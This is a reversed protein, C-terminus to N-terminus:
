VEIAAGAGFLYLYAEKVPRGAAEALVRRYIEMQKAYTKRLRDAEEEFPRSPDIWNTKYDLLVFGDEEAFYCDIIGQTIIQEGEVDMQLAFPRERELVGREFAKAARRGLDSAFFDVIRGLDVAQIETETFITRDIMDAAAQELYPLGEVAARAFDIREMIGHYITGKEAATLKKEGQRFKPVALTMAQQGSQGAGAEGATGTTGTAAQEQALRNLESVSYKSKLQRAAEYPYVYSLRREVEAKQAETPEGAFFGPDTIRKKARGTQKKGPSLRDGHIIELSTTQGIMELYTGEGALGQELFERYKEGDKVTGTMFLFDKARTLAVYLIRTEEQVEEMHVQRAILKQLLTQKHWHGRYDALTMGIGIDKHLVVGAGIRTYTLNRGMGCVIVMPFELGKSKHITMIRVLEDQDGVLKVQGMPVKRKKVADIYRIFSYLSVQRNEMYKEAKDILARLNAQRQAGGPMAGMELYYGTELMLEWLFDGLPQTLSKAKWGKIDELASACKKRLAQRQGNQAYDMVASAFSGKKNEGRIRALEASSFKFIESHLVSILEVDQQRNDIVSLLNMFVSIEMTDFYGDSEDVFADIGRGKLTQYFIDAYNRTGRMLIVMDHLGLPREVGQKHDFFMRGLNEEILDAAELAELEANKLNALEEDTRDVTAVDVVKVEPTYLYPGDYDVGPYLKAEDDYDEMLGDFIENIERLIVSKSRFNRNLDLKVSQEESQYASYKAKFIEPEALRFKYISQKVDGVMFLNNERRILSIIEEQLVNTDQYEDIFIHDFKNRYYNAAEGAELIELCFHEIDNFDIVRKEAKASRFIHDFDLLLKRLTQAKPATQNMEAIQDELPELFFSKSISGIGGSAKKRLSAVTNKVMEYDPKEDKKAVLRPAAFNAMREALAEWDRVKVAEEMELYQALEEKELKEAMRELGNGGLIEMAQEETQISKEVTEGFFSWLKEMTEGATFTAKDASLAAVQRDLWEWPHPMAMLTGYTEDLMARIKNQNKDASYWGLFDYFEPEDREFWQELLADMADEKMITRQADDCISFGPEVDAEYFFRRIVDLAFSHFTSINARPLLALQQRMKPGNEPHEEAEKHLAKRIKEKMEAAAANTFTVILMRDIPVGDEIILKKIREVLVATKGSGAAAAVLINRGREDIAQQQEKTWKM